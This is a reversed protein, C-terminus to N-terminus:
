RREGPRITIGRAIEREGWEVVHKLILGEARQAEKFARADGGRVQKTRM